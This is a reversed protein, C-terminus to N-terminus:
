AGFLHNEIELIPIPALREIRSFDLAQILPKARDGPHYATQNKSHRFLCKMKAKGKRGHIEFDPLLGLFALIGQCDCLMVDEIDAEAALDVICRARAGISDRLRRWDGEHFKSIPYSYEDTDYCLFVTWDIDGHEEHCVHIFWASSNTMQSVSNVTNFRVLVRSDETKVVYSIDSQDHIREIHAGPHRVCVYKLYEFYFARETPGEVIFAIGKTYTQNPEM